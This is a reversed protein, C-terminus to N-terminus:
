VNIRASLQINGLVGSIKCGGSLEQFFSVLKYISFLTSRCKRLSNIVLEM